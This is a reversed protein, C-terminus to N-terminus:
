VPAGRTGRTSWALAARLGLAELRPVIVREVTAYFLVRADSGSCLGLAAGAPGFSTGVPLHALEHAELHALAVRLYASLRARAADELRPLEAAVKTWGFRAHGIEDAWIRTLLERLEGNPMEEREAGILAVAVTESLCGISLVNRLVAESPAVDEHAPFVEQQALADIAEGGLAEVVAGCLVGHNKEEEAFGECARVEDASAGARALQEALCSFVYSSGYENVMRRRWTHVAADTLSGEPRASEAEGLPGALRRSAASRAEARLNLTRM